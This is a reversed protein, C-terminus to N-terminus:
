KTTYLKIKKFPPHENYHGTNCKGGPYQHLEKRLRIIYDKHVSFMSYEGNYINMIVRTTKYRSAIMGM